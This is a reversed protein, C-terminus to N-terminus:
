DVNIRGPPFIIPAVLKETSIVDLAVAASIHWADPHALFEGLGELTVAPRNSLAAPFSVASVNRHFPAPFHDRVLLTIALDVRANDVLPANWHETKVKGPAFVVDPHPASICSVNLAMTSAA